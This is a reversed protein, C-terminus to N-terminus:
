PASARPGVEFLWDSGERAVPRLPVAGAGDFANWAALQKPGIQDAHVWVYRLGTEARLEALAQPGPIRAALEMRRPFDSPYYSRYGNLLPQRHYIAHYMATAHLQPWLRRDGPALPIEVVPGPAERLVRVLSPPPVPAPYIDWPTSPLNSAGVDFYLGLCVLALLAMRAATGLVGTRGALLRTEIAAFALGALIATGTLAGAGSRAPIRIWGLQPVLQAAYSMPMRLLHSGVLLGQGISLTAGVVFWLAGTAWGRARAPDHRWEGRLCAVLVGVVILLMTVAAMQAPMEQGLFGPLTWPLVVPNTWITQASLNPNDAIVARYGLYVPALAVASVALAAALRLGAARTAPQVLRIAALAALPAVVAPAVYATETLSQLVILPVLVLAARLREHPRSALYAILPFCALAAFHPTTPIYLLIFRNSLFTAAAVFGALTSGTWWRVVLHFLWATTAFGALLTINLALTPNGTLLFVPAFYPLAGLGAQGYFLARPTPHYANADAISWPDTTLARSSWSLAWASLHRDCDLARFVGPLHSALHASLPWTLWAVLLAYGVLLLADAWWSTLSPGTQM